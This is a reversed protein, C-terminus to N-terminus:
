EINESKPIRDQLRIIRKNLRARYENPHIELRITFLVLFFVAVLLYGITLILPFGWRSQDININNCNHYIVCNFMIETHIYLNTILCSLALILFFFATITRFIIRGIFLNTDAFDIEYKALTDQLQAIKQQTASISRRAWYDSLRTFVYRLIIVFVAFLAAGVFGALVDIPFNGWAQLGRIM